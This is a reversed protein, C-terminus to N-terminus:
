GASANERVYDLLSPIGPEWETRVEVRWIFGLDRLAGLAAEDAVADLGRAGERIADELEQRTLRPRGRFAEAVCRGVPILKRSALEEYRRAYFEGKKTEFSRCGADTAGTTLASAGPETHRWVAEGLLQIFFPYGQSLATLRGLVERDVTIGEEALPRFFAESSAEGSLRGIRLQRAREWFSVGMANLRGELNPTGAFVLLFPHELSVDQAANWLVRGAELGFTHAEDVLLILPEDRTRAELIEGVTPPSAKGPKWSLGYGSLTGGTFKRWWSKRTLLERLRGPDSVDSPRLSAASIGAAAAEAKLWDLLVTKGNGRPGYFVLQAGPCKGESLEALL